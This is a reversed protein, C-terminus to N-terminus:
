KTETPMLKRIFYQMDHALAASIRERYIKNCEEITTAMAPYPEIGDQEIKRGILFALSKPSPIRGSKDPRPIIPKVSIWEMLANVPPFAAKYVAGPPSTDKGKRGGEIYKWYKNLTM